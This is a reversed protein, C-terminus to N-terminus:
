AVGGQQAKGIIAGAQKKSVACAKDWSWGLRYVLYRVQRESPEDKAPKAMGSVPPASGPAFPDVDRAEYTADALIDPPLILLSDVEELESSSLKDLRASLDIM